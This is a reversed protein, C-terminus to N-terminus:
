RTRKGPSSDGARSRSTQSKSRQPKIAAALAAELKAIDAHSLGRAEEQAIFEALRKDRIADKLTLRAM